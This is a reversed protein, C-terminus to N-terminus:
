KYNRKMYNIEKIIDKRFWEPELVEVGCGHALIELFFEVTPYVYYSFVSYYEETVIEKQSHHIPLTRVYRRENSDIRLKVECPGSSSNVRVGFANNFYERANFDAPMEFVDDSVEVWKIRDLCYTRMASKQNCFGVLYWRQHFNKLCYPDVLYPIPEDDRFKQYAISVKRNLHMATTIPEIFEYGNPVQDFIIRDSLGKCVSITNNISFSNFLWALVPQKGIDSRDAIYYRFTSKNCLIDIDFMSKIQELHNQFTRRPLPEGSFNLISREWKSAVESLTVGEEGADFIVQALWIYRRFLDGTSVKSNTM